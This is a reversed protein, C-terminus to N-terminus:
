RKEIKGVRDELAGIRVNIVRIQANGEGNAQQIKEMETAMKDLARTQQEDRESRQGAYVFAGAIAIVAVALQAPKMWFEVANKTEITV